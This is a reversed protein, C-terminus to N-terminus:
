YKFKVLFEENAAAIAYGSKTKIKAPVAKICVPRAISITEIVINVQKDNLIDIGKVDNKDYYGEIIQKYEKKSSM